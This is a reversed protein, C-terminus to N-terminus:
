RPSVSHELFLARLLVIALHLWYLSSRSNEGLFDRKAWETSTSDPVALRRGGSDYSCTGPIPSFM